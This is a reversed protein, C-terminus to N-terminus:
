AGGEELKPTNYSEESARQSQRRRYCRLPTFAPIGNQQAVVQCLVLAPPHRQMFIPALQSPMCIYVKGVRAADPIPSIFSISVVQHLLANGSTAVGRHLAVTYVNHDLEEVVVKSLSHVM